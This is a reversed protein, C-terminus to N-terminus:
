IISERVLIRNNPSRHAIYLTKLNAMLLLTSNSAAQEIKCM